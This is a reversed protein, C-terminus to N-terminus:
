SDVLEVRWPEAICYGGREVTELVERLGLDRLRNIAVQLRRVGSTGVMREGPWGAELLEEVGVDRAGEAAADALRLLLRRLLPRRALDVEGIGEGSATRGDRAVRLVPKPTVRRRWWDEILRATLRVDSVAEGAGDAARLTAPTARALIATVEAELQAESSESRRAAMVLEAGEGLLAVALRFNSAALAPGRALALQDAAPSPDDGSALLFALLARLVARYPPEGFADFRDLADLADALRGDGRELAALSRYARCVHALVVAGSRAAGQAAADYLGIADDLAGEVHRQIAWTADLYAVLYDHGHKTLLPRARDASASAEARQGRELQLMSWEALTAGRGADDGVAYFLQHARRFADDAAEVRAGRRRLTGLTLTCRALLADDVAGEAAAVTAEIVAIAEDARGASSHHLAIARGVRAQAAPDRRQEALARARELVPEADPAGVRTAWRGRMELVAGAAEVSLEDLRDLLLDIRAVHADPPGGVWRLRDLVDLAEVTLELRGEALAHEFAAVLDEEDAALARRADLDGREIAGARARGRAVLVEAHRRRVSPTPHDPLRRAVDERLFGLMAARPGADTAVIELFSREVLEAVRDVLAPGHDELVAEALELPFARRFVTLDAVLARTSPDLEAWSAELARELPALASSASWRARLERVGVLRARKAALEIALPLGDVLHLIAVVDERAGPDLAAGPALHALHDLWLQGAGSAELTAPGDPVDLPPLEVVVEGDVGLPRRATVLVSPQRGVLAVLAERADGLLGDVGDLVLLEVGHDDLAAGLAALHSRDSASPPIELDLARALTGVLAAISSAGHLDVVVRSAVSSAWAGVLASKGVGVTGRVTVVSGGVARAADLRALAEVRGVLARHAGPIRPTEPAPIAMPIITRRWPM